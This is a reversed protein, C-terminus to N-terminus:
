MAGNSGNGAGAQDEFGLAWLVTVGTEPSEYSIVPYDGMEIADIRSPPGLQGPSGLPAEGSDRLGVLVISALVCVSATAWVARTAEAWRAKRRSLTRSAEVREMVRRSYAARAEAPVSLRRARSLTQSVVGLSQVMASCSACRSLHRRVLLRAPLSLQGDVFGSLLAENREAWPCPQPQSAEGVGSRGKRAQV